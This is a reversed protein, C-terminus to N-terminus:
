VNIVPGPEPVDGFCIFETRFLDITTTAVRMTDYYAYAGVGVAGVVPLWRSLGRGAIRRALSPGLKRVAATAAHAPAKELLIREGTRIVLGRVTQAAAHRFLCYVMQDKGLYSQKGFAGAIDAVMQSQIKWVLALDPIITLLGAPGPPLSLSGSVTASKVAAAKAIARARTFPTAAHPEQTTPIRALVDLITDQILAPVDRM